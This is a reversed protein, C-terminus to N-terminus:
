CNNPKELVENQSIESSYVGTISKIEFMVGGLKKWQM